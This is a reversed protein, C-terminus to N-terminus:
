SRRRRVMQFACKCPEYAVGEDNRLTLYGMLDLEFSIAFYPDNM